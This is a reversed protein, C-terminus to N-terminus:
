SSWCPRIRSSALPCTLRRCSRPCWPHIDVMAVPRCPSRCCGLPAQPRTSSTSTAKRSAFTPSLFGTIAMLVMGKLGYASGTVARRRQSSLCSSCSSVVRASMLLSLRLWATSLTQATLAFRCTRSVTTACSFKWSIRNIPSSEACLCSPGCWASTRCTRNIARSAISFFKVLRESMTPRWRPIKGNRSRYTRLSMYRAAAVRRHMPSCPWAVCCRRAQIM